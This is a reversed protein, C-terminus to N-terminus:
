GFDLVLIATNILVAGLDIYNWFSSLYELRKEKMQIVEYLAFYVTCLILLVSISFLCAQLAKPLGVSALVAVPVGLVGVLLDSLALSLIYFHIPLFLALAVGSFRHLAFALWLGHKRHGHKSM